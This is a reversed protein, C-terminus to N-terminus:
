SDNVYYANGLKKELAATITIVHRKVLLCVILIVTNVLM